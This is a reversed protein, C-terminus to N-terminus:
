FIRRGCKILLLRKLKEEKAWQHKAYKFLGTIEEAYISTQSPDQLSKRNSRLTEKRM